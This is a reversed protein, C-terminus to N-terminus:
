TSQLNRRVLQQLERVGDRVLSGASDFHSAVQNLTVNKGSKKLSVYLLSPALIQDPLNLGGIGAVRDGLAMARLAVSLGFVPLGRQWIVSEVAELQVRPEPPRYLRGAVPPPLYTSEYLRRCELPHPLVENVVAVGDKMKWQLWFSYEWRSAASRVSGATVEPEGSVPVATTSYVYDPLEGPAMGIAWLAGSAGYLRHLCALPSQAATQKTRWRQDGSASQWFSMALRNGLKFVRDARQETRARPPVVRKGGSGMSQKRDGSSVPFRKIPVSSPPPETKPQFSSKETLVNRKGDPAAQKGGALPALVRVASVSDARPLCARCGMRDRGAVLREASGCEPCAPHAFRGAALLWILTMRHMRAGRRVEMPVVLAPIGVLHLRFPRIQITPRHTEEVEAVRRAQEVRTAEAQADLLKSREPAATAHRRAISELVGGYYANIRSLQVSRGREAYGALVASRAGARSRLAGHGVAIAEPLDAPVLLLRRDPQGILSNTTLTGAVEDPLVLGGWADVWVEEREQFSDELSLTYHVMAAIRLAPFYIASPEEPGPDIRGHDIDFQERAREVLTALPPASKVPWSQYCSGVDGRDLVASATEDLAPHGPILLVGGEERALEPDTCVLVEEDLHFRERFHEPVVALASTESQAEWVGGQDELYNLWFDLGPEAIRM